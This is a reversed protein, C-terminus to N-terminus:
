VDPLALREAPPYGVELRDRELQGLQPRRDLDRPPVDVTPAALPVGAGQGRDVRGLGLVPRGLELVLNDVGPHLQVAAVAVHHLVGDGLGVDIGAHLADVAARVLDHLLDDLAVQDAAGLGPQAPY